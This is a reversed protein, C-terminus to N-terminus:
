RAPRQDGKPARLRAAAQLVAEPKQESNNILVVHIVERAPVVELIAGYGGTAGSHIFWHLDGRAHIFWGLGVKGPGSAVSAHPKLALAFAAKLPTKEPHLIAQGYKILDVVTTRLGGAPAMTDFNWSSAPKEGQYPPALRKASHTIDL